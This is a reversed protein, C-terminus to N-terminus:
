ARSPRKRARSVKDRTGSWSTVRATCKSRLTPTMGPKSLMTEIWKKGRMVTVFVAQDALILEVMRKLDRADDAICGTFPPAFRIWISGKYSQIVLHGAKSSAPAPVAIILDGGEEFTYRKWSPRVKLLSQVARRAGSNRITTM